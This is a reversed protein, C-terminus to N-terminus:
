IVNSLDIKKIIKRMGKSIFPRDYEEMADAGLGEHVVALQLCIKALTRPRISSTIPVEPVLKKVCGKVLAIRRQQIENMKHGGLSGGAEKIFPQRKLFTDLEKAIENELDSAPKGVQAGGCACSMDQLLGKVDSPKIGRPVQLNVDSQGNFTSIYPNTGLCSIVSWKIQSNKM